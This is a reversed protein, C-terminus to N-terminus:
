GGTLRKDVLEAVKASMDEAPKEEEVQIDFIQAEEFAKLKPVKDIMARVFDLTSKDPTVESDFDSKIKQIMKRVLVYLEAHCSYQEKLFQTRKNDWDGEKKWEVLTRESVDIQKAIGSLPKHQEVYLRESLAYFQEKKGM